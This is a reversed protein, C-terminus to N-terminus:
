KVLRVTDVVTVTGLTVNIGARTQDIYGTTSDADFTLTWSAPKVGKFFYRGLSDPIASLSDTGSVALVTAHAEDPLVVGKIGGSTAESFTRIVPKLMYKGNGTQVISRAADFDIWIKYTVGSVLDQHLNLKLGSQQASPTTLHITQGDVVLSNNDGLKLRIQSIKGAPLDITALLTDMGNRFDLLNYIGPHLIHLDQWGSQSSDSSSNIEISQIDINVEDVDAPGDTLRLELHATGNKNDNKSCASLFLMFSLVVVSVSAFLLAKSIKM